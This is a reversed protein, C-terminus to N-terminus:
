QTQKSARWTGRRVAIFRDMTGTVFKAFADPNYSRSVILCTLFGLAYIKTEIDHDIIVEEIKSILEEANKPVQLFQEKNMQKM